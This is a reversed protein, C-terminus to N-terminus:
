ICIFYFTCGSLDQLYPLVICIIINIYKNICSFLTKANGSSPNYIEVFIKDINLSITNLFRFCISFQEQGSIDTTGDTM